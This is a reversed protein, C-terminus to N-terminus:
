MIRLVVPGTYVAHRTMGDEETKVDLDVVYNGGQKTVTCKGETFLKREMAKTGPFYSSGAQLMSWASNDDIKLEYTGEPVYDTGEPQEPFYLEIQFYHGDPDQTYGTDGWGTDSIYIQASHVGSGPNRKDGYYYGQTYTCIVEQDWVRSAQIITVKREIGEYTVTVEASRDEYDTNETAYVYVKGYSQVNFSLWDADSSAEVIGTATPNEITYEVIVTDKRWEMNLADPSTLEFIVSDEPNEPTDQTGNKECSVFLMAAMISLVLAFSVTKKM